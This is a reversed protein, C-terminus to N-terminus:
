AKIEYVYIYSNQPRRRGDNRGGSPNFYDFARNGGGGDNATHGFSISTSGANLGTIRRQGWFRYDATSWGDYWYTYEYYNTGGVNVYEGTTGSYRGTGSIMAYVYLDSVTSSYLKTFSSSWYTVNAGTNVATEGTLEFYVTNLVQGKNNAVVFNGSNDTIGASTLIM